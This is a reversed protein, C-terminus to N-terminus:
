TNHRHTTNTKKRLVVLDQHRRFAGEVIELVDFAGSWARRIYDPAHVAVGYSASIGSFLEDDQGFIPYEYYIAGRRRLEEDSISHWDAELPNNGERLLKLARYGMTSILLLGGPKLIRASEVLWDDQLDVPLHTWVSFAYVADFRAPPFPLPPTSQNVAGQVAPFTKQLYRIATPDVDCAALAPGDPLFHTLVRGCGAGLDLLTLEPLPQEAWKQLADRFIQYDARGSNLFWAPDRAGIRDRNKFPPIPGDEGTRLRYWQIWLPDWVGVTALLAKKVFRNM